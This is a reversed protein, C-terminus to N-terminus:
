PKQNAPAGPKSASIINQYEELSLFQPQYVEGTQRQLTSVFARLHNQSGKILNQFVLLIDAKDTIAMRKELDQIDIEEISAGVKLAEALSPSGQNILQNYLAQIEPNSFVGIQDVFPDKVNYRELLTKIADTHTQESQSINNFLQLNWQNYLTIYVDRALKEEERMYILADIEAQSLVGAPIASVATALDSSNISAEDNTLVSQTPTLSSPTSQETVQGTGPTIMPTNEFFTSQSPAAGCASLIIGLIPLLFVIKKM